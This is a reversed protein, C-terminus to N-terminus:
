LRINLVTFQPIQKSEFPIILEYLAFVFWAFLQAISVNHNSIDAPCGQCQTLMFKIDLSIKHCAQSMYGTFKKYETALIIQLKAFYNRNIVVFKSNHERLAIFSCLKFHKIM